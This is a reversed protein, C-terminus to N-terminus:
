KAEVRPKLLFHLKLTNFQVLLVAYFLPTIFSMAAISMLVFLAQNQRAIVMMLTMVMMSILMPVLMLVFTAWWHGWVLTWSRELAIIGGVNDLVVLPVCFMFMMSMFVGPFVFLMFGGVILLSSLIFACFIAPLKGMVVQLSQSWSHGEGLALGRMGHILIAMLVPTILIEVVTILLNPLRMFQQMDAPAAVPQGSILQMISPLSGIFIILVSLPLVGLLSNRYLKLSDSLVEGLSQPATSFRFM